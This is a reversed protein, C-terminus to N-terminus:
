GSELRVENIARGENVSTVILTGGVQQPESAAEYNHAVLILNIGPVQIALSIAKGIDMDTLVVRYDTRSAIEAVVERAAQGLLREL